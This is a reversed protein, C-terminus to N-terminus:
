KLITVSESVMDEWAEVVEVTAKVLGLHAAMPAMQQLSLLLLSVTCRMHLCQMHPCILLSTSFQTVGTVSLWLHVTPRSM